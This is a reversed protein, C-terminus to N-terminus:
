AGLWLADQGLLVRRAEGRAALDLLARETGELDRIPDPGDALLGAVEATTLGDPFHELLPGPGDPVPHRELGPELNAVLM